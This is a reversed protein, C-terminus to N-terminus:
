NRCYKILDSLRLRSTERSIEHTKRDQYDPTPCNGNDIYKQYQGLIKEIPEINARNIEYTKTVM